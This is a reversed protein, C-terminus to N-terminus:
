DMKLYVSTDFVVFIFDGEGISARTIGEPKLKRDFTAVQRLQPQGDNGNWEWLKFDTKDQSETAGAIISFMKSRSDYEISRIGLGGLPLRITKTHEPKFNEYSFRGGPNEPKLAVVLADSNARPSRLGLLLRGGQPDWALGEINIGDEGSRKEGMGKLEAVNEVLFQKLGSLTEVQEASESKPNFRFKVIGYQEGGAKRSQSGVIYFSTGDTTIGEPDEINVGLRVPKIAGLQNGDRDLKMWLVEGPRGDDIFLIGDTGPVYAVGSAEFTGGEFAKHKATSNGAVTATSEDGSLYLALGSGAMVALLVALLYRFSRPYATYRQGSEM